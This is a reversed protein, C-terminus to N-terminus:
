NINIVVPRWEKIATRQTAAVDDELSTLPNQVMTVHYGSQAFLSSNPLVGFCAIFLAPTCKKGAKRFFLCSKM